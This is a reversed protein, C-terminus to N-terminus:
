SELRELLLTALGLFAFFGFSDTLATVFIGSALAPDKRLRKLVLPVVTGALVAVFLNAIMALMLIGGLVLSGKWAWALAGIIAGALVGNVVGVTIEKVIARGANHFQLEGLALARVTITLTQIGANGGLGAVIPMFVALTVFNELTGEFLSIVSAAILSTVINVFLWPLRKRISRAPPDLIHEDEGVGALLYMDETAEEEVVDLVDDGTIRGILQGGVDTVPLSVVDFRRFLLAVEEQDLFAPAFPAHPTILAQLSTDPDAIVVDYLDVTGLFNGGRDVAFVNHILDKTETEAGFARLARLADRATADAEISFFETQMLGGASEPPYQRLARVDAELADDLRELVDEALAHSQDEITELVDAADDAAMTDVVAALTEPHEAELEVLVDQVPEDLELLVAAAVDKPLRRFSEQLGEDDLGQLFDAVDEPHGGALADALQTFERADAHRRLAAHDLAPQPM